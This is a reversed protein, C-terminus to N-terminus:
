DSRGRIYIEDDKHGSFARVALLEPGFKLFKIGDRWRLPISLPFREWL